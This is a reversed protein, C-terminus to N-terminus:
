IARKIHGKMKFKSRMFVGIEKTTITFKNATERSYSINYVHMIKKQYKM